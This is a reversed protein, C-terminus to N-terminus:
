VTPKRLGVVNWARDVEILWGRVASIRPEPEVIRLTVDSTGDIAAVRVETKGGGRDIKQMQRALSRQLLHPMGLLVIGADLWGDRRSAALRDILRLVPEPVDQTPVPPDEGRAKASEFADITTSTADMMVNPADGFDDPVERLSTKLYWELFGLEDQGSIAPVRLIAQRRELYHVLQAPRTLVDTVTELDDMAVTWPVDDAGRTVLSGLGNVLHGIQELTVSIQHIRDYDDRCITFPGAKSKFTVKDASRIFEAARRTQEHAKLVLAELNSKLLKEIGIRARRAFGGGKAEVFFLRREFAILVDVEGGPYKLNRLVTAGTLVRALLVAARAESFETRHGDYQHWSSTPKLSDEFLPQLAPLFLGPSPMVYADDIRVLPKSKLPSVPVIYWYDALDDRTTTLASLAREIIESPLGTETALDKATMALSHGTRFGLWAGLLGKALEEPNDPSRERLADLFLRDEEAAVGGSLVNQIGLMTTRAQVLGDRATEQIRRAFAAEITMADECTFGIVKRLADTFPDFLTRLLHKQHHDYRPVRVAMEWMRVNTVADLIPDPKELLEEPIDPFALFMAASLHRDVYGFLADGTTQDVVLVEGAAKEKALLLAIHEVLAFSFDDIKKRSLAPRIHHRFFIVGLITLSDVHSIARLLEEAERRFKEPAEQRFERLRTRMSAFETESANSSWEVRKGRRRVHM